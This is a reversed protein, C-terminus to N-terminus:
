FDHDVPAALHLRMGIHTVPRFGLEAYLPEGESSANLGVVTISRERYWDLLAIMCARSYGLRRHAPDTAVNYVYGVLGSPNASDGLRQEIAGVACAALGADPGTNAPVVYAALRDGALGDALVQRAPDQWAAGLDTGPFMGTLM